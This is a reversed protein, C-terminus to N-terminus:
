YQKSGNKYCYVIYPYRIFTYFIQVYCINQLNILPFCEIKKLNKHTLIKKKLYNSTM